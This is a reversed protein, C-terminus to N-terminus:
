LASAPRALGPASGPNGMPPSASGGSPALRLNLWIKGFCHMFNLFNQVKPAGGKSGGSCINSM